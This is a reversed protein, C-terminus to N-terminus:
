YLTAHSELLTTLSLNRQYSHQSWDHPFEKVTCIFLCAIHRLGVVLKSDDSRPSSQDHKPTTECSIDSLADTSLELNKSAPMPSVQMQNVLTISFRHIQVIAALDTPMSRHRVSSLIAGASTCVFSITCLVPNPSTPYWSVAM